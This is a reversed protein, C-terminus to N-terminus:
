QKNRAFQLFLLFGAIIERFFDYDKFKSINQGNQKYYEYYTAEESNESRYECFAAGSAESLNMIKGAFYKYIQEKNQLGATDAYVEKLLKEKKAVNQIDFYLESQYVAIGIQNSLAKLLEIQGKPISVEEDFHLSLFGLLKGNYRIFALYFSKLGYREFYNIIDNKYEFDEGKLDKSYKISITDHYKEANILFNGLEKQLDSNKTSLVMYDRKYEFAEDYGKFEKTKNDFFRIVCRQADFFMGTKATFENAVENLSFSSRLIGILDILLKEERSNTILTTHLKAQVIAIHTQKTLLEMIEFDNKDLIVVNKTFQMVVYMSYRDDEYILFPYSSKIQSKKIFIDVPSNELKNQKVFKESNEIVFVPPNAQTEKLQEWVGCCDLNNGRLSKVYPNALYEKGMRPNQPNDSFSIIFFTRDAGFAQSIEELILKEMEDEDLTNRIRDLFKIITENKKVKLIDRQLTIRAQFANQFIESIKQLLSKKFALISRIEGYIELTIIRGEDSYMPLIKYLDYNFLPFYQKLYESQIDNEDIYGTKEQQLTKLIYFIEHPSSLEKDLSKSPLSALVNVKSYTYEVVCVFEASLLKKVEDALVFAIKSIASFNDTKKSLDYLYIYKAHKRLLIIIVFLLFLISCLCFFLFSFTYCNEMIAIIFSM